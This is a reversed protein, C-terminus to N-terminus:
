IRKRMYPTPTKANNRQKKIKQNNGSKKSLDELIIQIRLETGSVAVGIGTLVKGRSFLSSSKRALDTVSFKNKNWTPKEWLLTPTNASKWTKIWQLGWFTQQLGKTNKTM